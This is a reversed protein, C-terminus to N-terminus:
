TTVSREDSPSLHRIVRAPNGVAVVGPPLNKTVVSGAGVVTDRGITVGPLVIVGAGLWVGDEITIPRAEERGARRLEPDLSHGGTLLQCRPAIMVHSGVTIPACDLLLVDFNIKTGAGIRIFFGFECIFRPMVWGGPGLEDVLNGLINERAAFDSLRTDNFEDLLEMCRRRYPRLVPDYADYPLGSAMRAKFADIEERLTERPTDGTTDTDAM